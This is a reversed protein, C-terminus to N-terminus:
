DVYTSYITSLFAGLAQESLQNGQRRQYLELGFLPETVAAPAPAVLQAYQVGLELCTTTPMVGVCVLRSAETKPEIFSSGM